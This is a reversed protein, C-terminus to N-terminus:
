KIIWIFCLINNPGRRVGYGCEFSICTSFYMWIHFAVFFLKRLFVYSFIKRIKLISKKFLVGFFVSWVIFQVKNFNYVEMQWFEGNLSKFHLGCHSLPISSPLSPSVPLSVSGQVICVCCIVGFIRM